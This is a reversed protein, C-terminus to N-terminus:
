GKIQEVIWERVRAFRQEPPERRWEDNVAEIERVMAQAIGFTDALNDYDYPDLEALDVGRRLGVSGIACVEGNEQLEGYVLRQSPLADLAALLERLFAQGRAGRIASKVAGRWRIMDWNDGDESYGSRSM